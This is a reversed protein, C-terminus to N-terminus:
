DGVELSLFRRFWFEKSKGDFKGTTDTGTITHLSLLANSCDDGLKSHVFKLDVWGKVFNNEDKKCPPSFKSKILATM